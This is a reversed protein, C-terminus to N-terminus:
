ILWDLTSKSQLCKPQNISQRYTLKPKIPKNSDYRVIQKVPAPSCHGFVTPHYLLTIYLWAELKKIVDDTTNWKDPKRLSPMLSDVQIPEFSSWATESQNQTLPFNSKTRNEYSEPNPIPEKTTQFVVISPQSFERSVPSLSRGLLWQQPKRVM